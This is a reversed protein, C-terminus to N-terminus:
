LSLVGDARVNQEDSGKEEIEEGSKQMTAYQAVLPPFSRIFEFNCYEAFTLHNTSGSLKGNPKIGPM